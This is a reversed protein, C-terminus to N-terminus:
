TGQYLQEQRGYGQNEKQRSTGDTISLTTKLNRTVVTSKDIERQHETVKQKIYKSTSHNPAHINLFTM